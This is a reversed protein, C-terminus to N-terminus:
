IVINKKCELSSILQKLEMSISPNPSKNLAIEVRKIIANLKYSVLRKMNFIMSHVVPASSVKNSSSKLNLERKEIEIIDNEVKFILLNIDLIDEKLKVLSKENQIQNNM